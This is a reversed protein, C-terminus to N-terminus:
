EGKVGETEEEEKDERMGQTLALPEQIQPEGEEEDEEEAEEM